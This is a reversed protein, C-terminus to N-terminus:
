NKHQQEEKSLKVEIRYEYKGEYWHKDGQKIQKIEMDKLKVSDARFTGGNSDGDIDNFVAQETTVWATSASHSAFNGDADTYVTDYGVCISGDEKRYSLYGGENKVVVQIGKLAKGDASAVRGKVQFDTIPCGYEDPTEGCAAFGLFTLMGCLLRQVVKEKKM